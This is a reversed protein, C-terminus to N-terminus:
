PPRESISQCAVWGGRGAGDGQISRRRGARRMYDNFVLLNLSFEEFKPSVPAPGMPDAALGDTRSNGTAHTPKVFLPTQQGTCRAM